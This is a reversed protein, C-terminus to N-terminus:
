FSVRGGALIKRSAGIKWHFLGDAFVEVSAAESATVAEKPASHSPNAELIAHIEWIRLIENLLAM